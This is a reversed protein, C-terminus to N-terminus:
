GIADPQQEKYEAITLNHVESRKGNTNHVFHVANIYDEITRIKQLPTIILLQLHLRKFLELGYRTSEDSGRGFAEDIVVFRFSRTNKAGHELGFQYVLASALITYALKEKQGGSKGSSDSYFEKEVNDEIFRESASFNFWNRVDTVKQTWRKDLELADQRGRFRDILVKIQKFKEENYYSSQGNSELTNSLCNRLQERFDRIETDYSMDALLAIYTGSSYEIERLSKNIIEIKSRISNEEKKLQNQLLAISNITGENLSQKFRLEHRPLDDMELQKLILVYDPIAEISVDVESTDVPYTSKYIQMASIISSNLSNKRKNYKALEANLYKRLNSRSSEMNHLTLLKVKLEQEIISDLEPFLQERDVQSIQELNTTAAALNDQISKVENEIAGLKRNELTLDNNAASIAQSVLHLQERLTQLVDLSSEIEIREQQKVDIQSVIARWDIEIFTTFQTLDRCVDRKDRLQNNDQNLKLLMNSLKDIDQHLVSLKQELVKIKDKNDWGLIYRSADSLSHRDDKEHRQNASKIQGSQTIAQPYRRFEELSECCVYNFRNQIQQNLWSYFPSKSNILLKHWITNNNSSEKIAQSDEKVRYYVLKAHLNTREVYQTVAAYDKDAVLISLGFNHLVREIAGEWERAEPNVQILEGVFPISEENLGLTKAMDQRIKLVRGPINSTRLRLSGLEDSVQQTNDTIVKMEIRISTSQEHIQKLEEDTSLALETAHKFNHLFDNEDFSDALGLKDAFQQYKLAYQYRREREKNLQQIEQELERLRQGGQEEISYQLKKEEERLEQIQQEISKCKQENILAQQELKQLQNTFLKIAHAAFYGDSTSDYDSLKTIQNNVQKFECAHTDIPQLLKIQNKSKLIALYSQNLDDFNQEIERLLNAIDSRELMHSRVFETLNGISKMSITQYFLDLAQENQIGFQQRFKTSYDKFNDLVTVHLQGNLRKKLMSINNGFNSFHETITLPSQAIVFFREPNRKNDKLWFVQALTINQLLGENYFNALVVSYNNEDRLAVAKAMQTSNDQENKYEGRIYSYLTREKGEAGAARNYIIRHHPVLLTTIADVLTSKGSGIDGTLLANHNNPEIRWVEQHFTGWNYVELYELRFGAVKDDDVLDLLENQM